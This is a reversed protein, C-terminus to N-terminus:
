LESATDPLAVTTAVATPVRRHYLIHQQAKHTSFGQVGGSVFQGKVSSHFSSCGYSSIGHGHSGLFTYIDCIAATLFSSDPQLSYALDRNGGLSFPHPFNRVM